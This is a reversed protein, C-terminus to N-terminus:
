QHIYDQLSKSEDEIEEVRSKVVDGISVIGVLEGQEVELMHRFKGTAAM